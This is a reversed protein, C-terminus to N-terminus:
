RNPRSLVYAAGVLMCAAQVLLLHLPLGWLFSLVFVAAMMSVALMKIRPAISGNQRWDQIIPGFVRHNELMAAM